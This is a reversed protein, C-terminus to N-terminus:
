FGCPILGRLNKSLIKGSGVKPIKVRVQVEHTPRKGWRTVAGHSWGVDDRIHTIQVATDSRNNDDPPLYSICYTVAHWVCRFDLSSPSPLRSSIRRRSCVFTPRRREVFTPSRTKFDSIRETRMPDSIISILDRWSQERFKSHLDDRYEM